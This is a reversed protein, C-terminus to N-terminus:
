VTACSVLQVHATVRDKNSQGYQEKGAASVRVSITCSAGAIACGVVGGDMRSDLFDTIPFVVIAISEDILLHTLDSVPIPVPVSIAVRVQRSSYAGQWFVSYRVALIAVVEVSKHIGVGFLDAVPSVVITVVGDILPHFEGVEGIFISVAVTHGCASDLGALGSRSGCLIGVIAIVRVGVDGRRGNLYTVLDVVVAVSLDVFIQLRNPLPHIFIPVSIPVWRSGNKSASRDGTYGVVVVITLVIVWIDPRMDAVDNAVVHVFVAVSVDIFDLHGILICGNVFGESHGIRPIHDLEPRAGPGLGDIQSAV